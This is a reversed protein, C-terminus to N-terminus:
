SKKASGGNPSVQRMFIVHISDHNSFPSKRNHYAKLADNSMVRVGIDGSAGALRKLEDVNDGTIILENSSKDFLIASVKSISPMIKWYVREIAPHHENELFWISLIIKHHDTVKLLKKNAFNNMTPILYAYEQTLSFLARPKGRDRNKIKEKKVLDAAELLRLQQSINAITTDLKEALQMPSFKGESLSKLINWKQDSFMLELEM